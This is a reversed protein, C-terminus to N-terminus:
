REKAQFFTEGSKWIRYKVKFDTPVYIVIPLRSSYKVTKTMMSVFRKQKKNDVCAMLTGAVEGKSEVVFYDYGWGEVSKEIIEGLLFYNNCDLEKDLGVFLEIKFLSENDIGPLNIYLRKFGPEPNPFMRLDVNMITKEEKSKRIMENKNVSCSIFMSAIFLLLINKKIISM